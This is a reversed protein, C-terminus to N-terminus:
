FGHRNNVADNEQALILSHPHHRHDQRRHEASRSKDPLDEARLIGIGFLVSPQRVDVGVRVLAFPLDPCQAVAHEPHAYTANNL